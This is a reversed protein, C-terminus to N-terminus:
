IYRSVESLLGSNDAIRKFQSLGKRDPDSQIIVWQCMKEFARGNNILERAMSIGTKLDPAQDAVYIIAGANACVIDICESYEMGSIVRMFRVAEKEIDNEASISEYTARDLGLDEPSIRYSETRGDPFFEHIATEGITSIEDMGKQGTQDYGHVVMARQYGIAQMARAVKDIVPEAFVGRLGHTPRCPSALSAAINLTSGFRIQSLIRFLANPHVKPSMGNFIGIGAKEISHGVHDVSCEVNIGLTDLIDVTGCISTLARSGHRALKVGSSAAVVAAATSVNFTKLSDMGTGSNEVLPQDLQLDIQHTDLEVIAQWAGAIEEATEGKSALASLFAGQQLDPQCNHMIQRFMDYSEDRSLNQKEIVKQIRLGYERLAAEEFPM